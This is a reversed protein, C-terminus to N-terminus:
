KAVWGAATSAEKVYLTTAVGGDRRVALSGVPADFQDLPSGKCSYTAQAGASGDTRWVQSGAYPEINDMQFGHDERVPVVGTGTWINNAMVFDDLVNVDKELSVAATAPLLEPDFTNGELVVREFREMGASVLRFGMSCQRVINGRIIVSKNRNTSRHFLVVGTGDAPGLVTNNSFIYEGPGASADVALRVVPPGTRQQLVFTNGDITVHRPQQGPTTTARLDICDVTSEFTNGMIVVQETTHNVFLYPHPYTEDAIVWENASFVIDHAWTVNVAGGFRNGILRWHHTRDPDNGSHGAISVVFDREGDAREFTCGEVLIDFPM